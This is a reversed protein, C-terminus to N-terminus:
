FFLMYAIGLLVLVVFIFILMKIAFKILKWGVLVIVAIALLIWLPLFPIV